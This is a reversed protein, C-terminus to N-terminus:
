LLTVGYVGYPQLQSASSSIRHVSAPHPCLQQRLLESLRFFHGGEAGMRGGMGDTRWAWLFREEVTVLFWLQPSM